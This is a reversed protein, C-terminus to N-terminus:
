AKEYRFSSFKPLKVPPYKDAANIYKAQLELLTGDRKLARLAENFEDRLDERGANFAFSLMSANDKTMAICRIYFLPNNNVIYRAVIEPLGIEDIEGRNVSLFLETLSNRFVFVSKEEESDTYVTSINDMFGCFEEESMYLKSLVGVRHGASACGSVVLLFVVACFIIRRMGLRM